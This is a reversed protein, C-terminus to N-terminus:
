KIGALAEAVNLAHDRVRRYANLQASFAVNVMPDVPEDSMKAVFRDRMEKVRHTIAEGQSNAKTIVEPRRQDYGQTILRIYDAVSDHLRLLEARDSDPIRLGSNELKLHSKLVTVIYDSISEYEDAMRLQRRGEDIVDHPLNAALLNSMFAVVEDQVTDLVEERHFVQQVIKDDPSEDSVIQKVWGMMKDCGEAMRLIEVRSQEIAIVPTELMRVDLNTLHPTEKPARDPVIRVLMRSLAPALPIFMLTNAINFGSHAGAIMATVNPEWGFIGCVFAVVWELERIYWPFLATIWLVGVVNFIVHFYAARRANTTAGFSALWATITTGINEGMVLAAATEFQIVGIQALGITIGL